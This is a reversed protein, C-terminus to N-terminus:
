DLSFKNGSITRSSIIREALDDDTGSWAGAVEKLLELEEAEKTYFDAKLSESLESLIELKTETSLPAILRM